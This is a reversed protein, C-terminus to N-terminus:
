DRVKGRLVSVKSNFPNGSARRFSVVQGTHWLADSIPGNIMNWLPFEGSQFVVKAKSLEEESLSAYLGSAKQLNKLTGSRLDEYTLKSWDIERTNPTSTPANVITESLGYIHQLTQFTSRAEDSPKYDLDEQTLGETAWYYRFGLGDVMRSLINGSSYTDPYEPIEYYPLSADQAMNLLPLLLFSCYFWYKM